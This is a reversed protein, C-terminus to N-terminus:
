EAAAAHFPGQEASVAYQERGAAGRNESDQGLGAAGAAGGSERVSEGDHAADYVGRDGAGREGGIQMTAMHQALGAALNLHVRGNVYRNEAAWVQGTTFIFRWDLENAATPNINLDVLEDTDCSVLPILFFM